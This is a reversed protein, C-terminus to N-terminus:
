GRWLDHMFWGLIRPNRVAQKLRYPLGSSGYPVYMRARVGFDRAIQLLPQQPLGYLLELECPTGANKLLRLSVRAMTPNHTAVAVHKARGALRHIVDIFGERPDTDDPGKWEGKVVRVRLGLDIAQQTDIVSRRWRSPLTCGLRPYNDRVRGILAFTPDVTEPALADFHVIANLRTAEVLIKNVLDVDFKLSPAKLSLYCDAADRAIGALLGIYAQSVLNPHDAYIDWYCVTSAIGDRELRECVSRADEMSPGAIYGRAARRILSQIASEAAGM